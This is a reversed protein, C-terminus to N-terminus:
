VLFTMGFRHNNQIIEPTQHFFSFHEQWKPGFNWFTNLTSTYFPQQHVQQAVTFKSTAMEIHQHEIRSWLFDLCILLRFLFDLRVVWILILITHRSFFGWVLCMLMVFGPHSCFLSDWIEAKSQSLAKIRTANSWLPGCFRFVVCSTPFPLHQWWLFWRIIDWSCISIFNQDKEWKFSCNTRECGAVPFSHWQCLFSGHLINWTCSSVNVCQNTCCKTCILWTTNWWFQNVWKAPCSLKGTWGAKVVNEKDACKRQENQNSM